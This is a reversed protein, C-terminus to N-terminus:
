FFMSFRKCSPFEGSRSSVGAGDQRPRRSCKCTSAGLSAIPYGTCAGPMVRKLHTGKDFDLVVGLTDVHLAWVSKAAGLCEIDTMIYVTDESTVVPGELGVYVTEM